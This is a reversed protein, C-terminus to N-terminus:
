INYGRNNFEKKILTAIYKANPHAKGTIEYYRLNLIHKWEAITYTYAVKTYACLPLFERTDQPALGTSLLHNYLWESFKFYTNVIFKNFKSLNFYFHPACIGIGGKKGFNVYRTSQEAINNPSTRNLERSTSIQTTVIITFRHLEDFPCENLFNYNNIEYNSFKNAFAPHELVFQGNTIIYIADKGCKFHIYPCEKYFNLTARLSNYNIDKKPVIYCKNIHRFMSFHKNNMLREKLKDAGTTKESAYCIRACKALHADEDFQTSLEVTPTIFKM